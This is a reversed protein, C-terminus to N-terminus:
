LGDTYEDHGDLPVDGRGLELAFDCPGWFGHRVDRDFRPVSDVALEFTPLRRDDDDM